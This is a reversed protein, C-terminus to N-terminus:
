FVRLLAEQALAVRVGAGEGPGRAREIRVASTFGGFLRARPAQGSWRVGRPTRELVLSAGGASRGVAMATVVIGATERGEFSRHLRRWTTFPLRRLDAARVDILDLIILGFGGAQVIVHLAKIARDLARAAVDGSADLDRQGARTAPSWTLSRVSARARLGTRREDVATGRVWLVRSLDVGAGAAARPDFTDTTDVLAVLEGRATARAMAACALGTRGSSRPGVIESVEGRAFGGGLAGDLADEGTSAVGRPPVCPWATSLTRDLRRARLLSEVHARSAHPM